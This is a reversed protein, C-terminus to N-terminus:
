YGHVYMTPPVGPQPGGFDMHLDPGLDIGPGYADENMCGTRINFDGMCLLRHGRAKADSLGDIFKSVFERNLVGRSYLASQAPSFYVFALTLSHKDAHLWVIGSHVDLQVRVGASFVPCTVRLLVLIGGSVRGHGSYPRTCHHVLYGDLNLSGWAGDEWMTETFVYFDYQPYSALVQPVREVARGCVNIAVGKFIQTPMVPM